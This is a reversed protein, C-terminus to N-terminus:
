RLPTHHLFTLEGAGEILGGARSSVHSYYVEEMSAKWIACPGPDSFVARASNENEATRDPYVVTSSFSFCVGEKLKDKKGNQPFCFFDTVIRGTEEEQMVDRMRRVGVMEGNMECDFAFGGSLLELRLAEDANGLYVRMRDYFTAM